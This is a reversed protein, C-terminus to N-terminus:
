AIWRRDCPLSWPPKRPHGRVWLRLIPGRDVLSDGAVIRFDLNPLPSDQPPRWQDLVLSLWLRLQCIEVAEPNIDVGYLSLRIARRKWETILNEEDQIYEHKSYAMGRRLLIIEQMMGLLFAGSGVAPDCIRVADLAEDLREEVEAPLPHSVEDKENVQKRLWDLRGQTVGTQDRLYGDLAQRCMFHVIERPTYYTGTNKREDGQYLNEFVRGLLEPDPDVSQDDPTSERTTFRYGRLLSLVTHPQNPEIDPDFVEDPLSVEGGKALADELRNKRFLGGNLYPTFGLLDRVAEGPAGNAMGEFFLPM